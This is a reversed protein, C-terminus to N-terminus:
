RLTIQSVEAHFVWAEGLLPLNLTGNQRVTVLWRQGDRLFGLVTAPMSTVTRFKGAMPALGDVWVEDGIAITEEGCITPHSTITEM